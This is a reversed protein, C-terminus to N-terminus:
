RRKKPEQYPVGLANYISIESDGALRKGERNFLGSGDAHLTYGIDQARRCLRINNEKSGTRILLITGWSEDTAFYLTVPILNLNFTMTKGLGGPRFPRCINLIEHHLNWLDSPILVIDIDHVLKRRRRISGAIEIKRCYPSLKKVIAEATEQARQLPIDGM